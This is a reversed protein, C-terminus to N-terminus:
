SPVAVPWNLFRTFTKLSQPEDYLTTTPTPSMVPSPLASM